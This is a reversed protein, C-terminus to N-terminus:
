SSRSPDNKLATHITHVVDCIVDVVRVVVVVVDVDTIAQGGKKIAV